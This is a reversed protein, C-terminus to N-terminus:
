CFRKSGELVQVGCANEAIFGGVDHLTCNVTHQATVRQEVKRVGVKFLAPQLVVLDMLHVVLKDRQGVNIWSQYTM